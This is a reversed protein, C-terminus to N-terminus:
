LYFMIEPTFQPYCGMLTSLLVLDGVKCFAIMADILFPTIQNNNKIYSEVSRLNHNVVGIQHEPHQQLLWEFVSQHCYKQAMNISEEIRYYSNMCLHIIDFSGSCIAREMTDEQIALGSVLLFKFCNISGFFASFSLLSLEYPENVPKIAWEFISFKPIVGKLSGIESYQHLRQIDDYKLIFELSTKAFGYYIYENLLNADNICHQVGIRSDDYHKFSEIVSNIDSFLEAFYLVPLKLRIQYIETLIEGISYGGAKFVHHIL